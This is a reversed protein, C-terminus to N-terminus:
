RCACRRAAQANVSRAADRARGCRTLADPDDVERAVSCLDAQERQALRAAACSPECGLETRQVDLRAREIAAEHVQIRAFAADLPRPGLKASTCALAGILPVLLAAAAAGVGFVSM